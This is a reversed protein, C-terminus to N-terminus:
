RLHVCDGTNVIEVGKETKLRIGNYDIDLVKGVIDERPTTIKVIKGLTKSYGNYKKLLKDDDLLLNKKFNNMFKNLIEMRDFEKNELIKLSTAIDLIEENIENNINIGVGLVLFSNQLNIESLIGCIKKYGISCRTRYPTQCSRTTYIHRNPNILICTQFNTKSTDVIVDNPWKIGFDKKSYTKLTEVASISALYNMKEYNCRNSAFENLDMLISFYLGGFNSFWTRGLRGRGGTQTDAVVILNRRGDKGLKYCYKNTSDVKELHIIEFDM